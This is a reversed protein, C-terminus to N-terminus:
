CPHDELHAWFGAFLRTLWLQGSIQPHFKVFRLSSINWHQISHQYHSLFVFCAHIIFNQLYYCFTWFLIYFIICYDCIYFFCVDSNKFHLSLVIYSLISIIRLYDVDPIYVTQSPAVGRCTVAMWHSVFVLIQNTLTQLNVNRPPPAIMIGFCGLITYGFMRRHM